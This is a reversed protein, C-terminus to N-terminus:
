LGRRHASRDATQQQKVAALSALAQKQQLAKRLDVMVPNRRQGSLIAKVYDTGHDGCWTTQLLQGVRDSREEPIRDIVVESWLVDKPSGPRGDTCGCSFRLYDIGQISQWVSDTIILQHRDAKQAAKTAYNVPTGAWVPEQEEPTRLTGVLKTLVRGSAVGVKFGTEPGSQWRKELRKVLSNKSFTKITVGACMAREVGLDGWFLGFAGDGQIAIFDANFEHLTAVAGGTAAEYISATSSDHKDTDLATSGKLDCVVAVVNELKVWRRSYPKPLGEATVDTATTVQPTAEIEKRVGDDLVALLDSLNATM